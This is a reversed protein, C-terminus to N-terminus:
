SLEGIAHREYLHLAGPFTLCMVFADERTDDYYKSRVGAKEFGVERYLKVAKGNSRRVELWISEVERSLAEEIMHNVLLRGLGKGREEPHVALNLLHVEFDLLWYCIFGAVRGHVVATWLCSIPNNIEQIFGGASWPISSSLTEIELIKELHSLHNEATIRILSTM